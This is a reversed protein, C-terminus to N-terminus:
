CRRAGNQGEFHGEPEGSKFRGGREGMPDRRWELVCILILSAPRDKARGAPQFAGPRYAGGTSGRGQPGSENEAHHQITAVPATRHQHRAPLQRSTQPDGTSCGALSQDTGSGTHDIVKCGPRAGVDVAEALGSRMGSAGPQDTAPQPQPRRAPRAGSANQSTGCCASRSSRCADTRRPYSIVKFVSDAIPFETVQRKQERAGAPAPM